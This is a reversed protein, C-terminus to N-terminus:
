TWPFDQPHSRRALDRGRKIIWGANTGV